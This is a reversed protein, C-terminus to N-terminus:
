ICVQAASCLNRLSSFGGGSITLRDLVLVANCDTEGFGTSSRHSIPNCFRPSTTSSFPFAANDSGMGM